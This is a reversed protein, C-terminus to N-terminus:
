EGALSSVGVFASMAAVLALCSFMDENMAVMVFVMSCLKQFGQSLVVELRCNGVDEGIWLDKAGSLSQQM